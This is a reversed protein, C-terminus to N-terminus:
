KFTVHITSSSQNGSLTYATVKVDAQDIPSKQTVLNLAATAEGKATFDAVYPQLSCTLGPAITSCDLYMRGSGPHATLRIRVQASDGNRLTVPAAEIKPGPIPPAKYVRVYDVLMEAPNPTSADSAGSWSKASGVALNLILFFPHNYVWEKGAPLEHPTVVFFINKPDDVYFQILYPSWIAGYTHFATDVRADHSFAIDNRVGYDGSYGPGHITSRIRSPGLGGLEPVNEMFDMEGSGPWGRQSIDDGLAWFAPWVGAGFPLKIRAEIRGYQFTQLGETKIRGSTWVHKHQVARLVLHEGDLSVNGDKPDCASIEQWAAAFRPKSQGPDSPFGPCYIEVEQNVQLNGIDFNWKAPDLRSGAPANFEDAWIPTGWDQASSLTALGLLIALLSFVRLSHM